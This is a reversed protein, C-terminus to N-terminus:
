REPKRSLVRVKAEVSGPRLFQACLIGNERKERGWGSISTSWTCSLKNMVELSQTAMVEALFGERVRKVMDQNTDGRMTM